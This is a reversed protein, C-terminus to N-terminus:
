FVLFGNFDGINAQQWGKSLLDFKKICKGENIVEERGRKWM